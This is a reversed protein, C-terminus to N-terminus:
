SSAGPAITGGAAVQCECRGNIEVEVSFTSHGSPSTEVSHKVVGWSTMVQGCIQNLGACSGSVSCMALATAQADKIADQGASQKTSGTGSGPVNHYDSGCAM